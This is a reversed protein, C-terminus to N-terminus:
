PYGIQVPRSLAAEEAGVRFKEAGILNGVVYHLDHVLQYGSISRLRPRHVGGDPVAGCKQGELVEGGRVRQEFSSPNWLSPVENLM